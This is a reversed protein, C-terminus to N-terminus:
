AIKKYQRTSNYDEDNAASNLETEAITNLNQKEGQLQIKTNEALLIPESSTVEIVSARTEEFM